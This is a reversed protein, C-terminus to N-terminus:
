CYIITEQRTVTNDAANCNYSLAHSSHSMMDRHVTKAANCDNNDRRLADISTAFDYYYSAAPAAGIIHDVGPSTLSIHHDATLSSVTLSIAIEDNNTGGTGGNLENQATPGRALATAIVAVAFCAFLILILGRM